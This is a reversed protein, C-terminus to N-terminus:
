TGIYDSLQDIWSPARAFVTEGEQTSLTLRYCALLIRGGSTQEPFAPGGYTRDGIIPTGRSAFQVRIQHTRGTIPLVSVLSVKGIGPLEGCKELRYRLLAEKVGQRKRRVPFVKNRARDYYLLDRLEGVPPVEGALLAIYEKCLSGEQVMASYKAAAAPTKAYLMLGGVGRDLRHVVGAYGNNQAALLDALGTREPTNESVLAPSKLVIWKEPDQFVIEVM